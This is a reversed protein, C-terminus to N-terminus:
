KLGEQIESLCKAIAVSKKCPLCTVDVTIVELDRRITIEVGSQCKATYYGGFYKLDFIQIYYYGANSLRYDEDFYEEISWKNRSDIAEYGDAWMEPQKRVLLFDGYSLETANKSVLKAFGTFENDKTLRKMIKQKLDQIFAFRKRNLFL